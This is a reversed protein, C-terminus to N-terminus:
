RKQEFVCVVEYSVIGEEAAGHIGHSIVVDELKEALAASGALKNRLMMVSADHDANDKGAVNIVLSRKPVNLRINTEPDDENPIIVATNKRVAELSTVIMEEPMHEALTIFIPSWQIQRDAFTVVESLTKRIDAKKKELATREKIAESYSDQEQSEIALAQTQIELFVENGFYRDLLAAAACLPALATVAAILIGVLTTKPPIGGGRLLDVTHM